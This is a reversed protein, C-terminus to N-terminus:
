WYKKQETRAPVAEIRIANKFLNNLSKKDKQRNMIFCNFIMTILFSDYFVWKLKVMDHTSAEM